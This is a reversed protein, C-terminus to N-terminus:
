HKRIYERPSLGTIKRFTTSLHTPSSFSLADAAAEVSFGQKLLKKAEETKRMLIWTKLSVGMEQRFCHSLRSESVSLTVALEDIRILEGVHADIERLAARTIPSTNPFRVASVHEAYELMQKIWTCVNAFEKRTLDHAKILGYAWEQLHKLRITRIPMRTIETGEYHNRWISLNKVLTSDSWTTRKKHELFEPFLNELTVEDPLIENSHKMHWAYIKDLLEEKTNAKLTTRGDKKTEDKLRIYYRKDTKGNLKGIKGIYNDLIKAKRSQEMDDKVGDLNISGNSVLFNLIQEASPQQILNDEIRKDTM